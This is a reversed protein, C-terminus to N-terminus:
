KAEVNKNRGIEIQKKAQTLYKTYNEEVWKARGYPFASPYDRFALVKAFRVIENTTAM